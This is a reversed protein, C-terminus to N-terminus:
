TDRCLKGCTLCPFLAKQSVDPEHEHEIKQSREERIEALTNQKAYELIYDPTKDPLAQMAEYINSYGTGLTANVFGNEQVWKAVSILRSVTSKNRGLCQVYYESFTDYESEYAKSAEVEALAIGLLIYTEEIHQNLTKTRELLTLTPTM